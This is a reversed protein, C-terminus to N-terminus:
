ISFNSLLDEKLISCDISKSLNDEAKIIELNYKSAIIYVPINNRFGEFISFKHDLHFDRSRLNDPDIISKNKNYSHYTLSEVKRRYLKWDSLKEDAICNGKELNTKRRKEKIIPSQSINEVGYIKMSTAKRNESIVGMEKESRKVWLKKMSKSTNETKEKTKNAKEITKKSSKQCEPSCFKRFGSSWRKLSLKKSCECIPNEINYYICYLEEMTEDLKRTLNGNLKGDKRLLNDEIYKKNM